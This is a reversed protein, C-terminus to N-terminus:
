IIVTLLKLHVPQRRPILGLPQGFQLGCDPPVVTVVNSLRIRGSCPLVGTSCLWILQRALLKAGVSPVPKKFPGTYGPAGRTLVAKLKQHACRSAM